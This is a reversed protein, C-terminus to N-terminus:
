PHHDVVRMLDPAYCGHRRLAFQRALVPQGFDAYDYVVADTKGYERAAREVRGVYQRVVGVNRTPWPMHLRDLPPLNLAEKAITAYVVCPGDLVADKVYARERRSEDGTLTLSPRDWGSGEIARRLLKLHGTQPSVVLQRHDRDARVCRAVLENRRPDERLAKMMSSYNNRHLHNGKRKCGDISCRQVRSVTTTSHFPFDFDTEVVRVEPRVLIGYERLEHRTTVYVVEGLIMEAWEFDGTKDPTASVGFRYRSEFRSMLDRYTEATQRHAEDLGTLGFRRFFGDRSLDDRRSYLTQQTAITLRREDWRGDGIIGVEMGPLFERAEDAWQDAVGIENVVVINRAMCARRVADLVAVTKGSGPPAQYIGDEESLLVSAAPGQQPRLDFAPEMRLVRDGSRRDDWEVEHGMERLGREFRRRFGRPILVDDGDEDWLYVREPMDTWGWVKEKRAREKARNPMSLEDMLAQRADDPIAHDKVRVHSDLIAPVVM